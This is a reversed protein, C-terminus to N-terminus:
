PPAGRAPPGGPLPLRITVPMGQRLGEDADEVTIRLGYVLDTRLEPTEVTKPTFEAVPSVFGIRGRYPREPASDTLIEVEMGPVVRGLLPEAVYARVRVPDDLSLVLVTDTPQVIAGAERVRSLVTGDSPAELVADELATVAAAENARAGELAARAAAVDEVRAGEIALELALRASQLRANAMEKEAKTRDFEAQAATGTRVLRTGREFAQGANALDAEREAVLARAQAIEAPRTGAVLRALNAEQEAVRASTARLADEYPRPDLRAVVTGASVRDGEEVELGAVRGGVRFGLEVQRIDVNGYLTAPGSEGPGLGLRAAADFWWAGAGALALLVVAIGARKRM